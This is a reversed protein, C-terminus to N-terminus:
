FESNVFDIVKSNLTASILGGFIPVRHNRASQFDSNTFDALEPFNFLVGVM